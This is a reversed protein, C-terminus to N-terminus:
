TMRGVASAVCTQAVHLASAETGGFACAVACHMADGIIQACRGVGGGRGDVHGGENRGGSQGGDLAAGGRGIRGEHADTGGPAVHQAGHWGGHDGEQEGVGAVNLGFQGSQGRMDGAGSHGVHIVRGKKLAVPKDSALKICNFHGIAGHFNGGMGHKGTASYVSQAVANAKPFSKGNAKDGVSVMDNGVTQEIRASLQAGILHKPVSVVRVDDANGPTAGGSFFANSLALKGLSGKDISRLAISGKDTALVCSDNINGGFVREHGNRFCGANIASSSKHSVLNTTDGIRHM